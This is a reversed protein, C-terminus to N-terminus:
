DRYLDQSFFTKLWEIESIVFCTEFSKAIALASVGTSQGGWALLQSMPFSESPPLSQPCSSFPVVSFSIAPHCWRSWPRSDSHVGPTPSPCPPRAHQSEHPRLSNSFVSRSFQVSLALLHLKCAHRTAWCYLIWRWLLLGPNLRQPAPTPPLNEISHFSLSSWYEQKPFRMSLPAQHTVTSPTAFLQVRSLLCVCVEPTFLNVFYLNPFM